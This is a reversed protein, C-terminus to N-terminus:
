VQCMVIKIQIQPFEMEHAPNKSYYKIEIDVVEYELEYYDGISLGKDKCFWLTWKSPYIKLKDGIKIKYVDIGYNKLQEPDNFSEKLHSEFLDNIGDYASTEILEIPKTLSINVEVFDEITITKETM